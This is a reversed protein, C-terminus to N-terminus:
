KAPPLACIISLGHEVNPDVELKGGHAEAIMRALLLRLGLGDDFPTPQPQHLLEQRESADLPKGQDQVRIELQKSAVRLTIEPSHDPARQAAHEILIRLLQALRHADGNLPFAAAQETIIPESRCGTLSGIANDVTLALDVHECILPTEKGQLRGWDSLEDLMRALRVSQRDVIEALDTLRAAEVNENRLLWAATRMPMLPGRLDHAIRSLDLKIPPSTSM